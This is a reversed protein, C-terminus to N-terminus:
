PIYVVWEGTGYDKFRGSGDKSEIAIRANPGIVRRLAKLVSHYETWDSVAFYVIASPTNHKWHRVNCQNLVEKFAKESFPNARSKSRAITSCVILQSM